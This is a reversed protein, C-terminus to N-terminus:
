YRVLVVGIQASGMHTLGPPILISGVITMIQTPGPASDTNPSCRPHSMCSCMKYLLFYLVQCSSDCKRLTTSDKVSEKSQIWDVVIDATTMKNRMWVYPTVAFVVLRDTLAHVYMPQIPSIVELSIAYNHRYQSHIMNWICSTIICTYLAQGLGPTLKSSLRVYLTSEWLTTYDSYWLKVTILIPIKETRTNWNSSVVSIFEFIVDVGDHM